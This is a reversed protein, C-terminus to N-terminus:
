TQLIYPPGDRLCLATLRGSRYAGTDIGIRNPQFDPEPTISHGHVIVGGHNAPSRLFEDRIWILDDVSQRDLAIGPRVGAHVFVFIWARHMTPLTELFGRHAPPLARALADRARTLEAPDDARKPPAVGYSAFTQAAGNAMWGPGYEVPDKLFELMLFEHNGLLAVPPAFGPLPPAMVRDIVGRSDPGRDVYDGLHVVVRRGPAADEAHARIRRYLRDLLDARGHIDGIAYVLDGPGLPSSDGTQFM